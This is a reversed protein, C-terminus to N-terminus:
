FSGGLGLFLGADSGGSREFTSRAGLDAKLGFLDFRAGLVVTGYSDDMGLGPVAYSMGPLSQLRATAQGAEDEFERDWTARAYPAFGGADYSLQWGLSGVLSDRSQDPLILASSSANGETWGDLEVQQWLLSAVPGHRLAGNGFQYGSSLGVATADGDASGSHRRVAPGIRVERDVDVDLRTYSVQGNVWAREGYWGAFAGLTTDAQTFGGRDGGFDADMRGYAAFGGAVLGNGNSWDMGFLAAPAIGDYLEGHGYRQHDARLGGWWRTGAPAQGRVHTAVQDARSRGTVTASYPIVAALRPGELVSLAYQGLMEHAAGSPHVGDAFLYTQGADPSVYSAPTCTLSSAGPPQCATGTVNTFGYTSPSAAIERLLSFTDLPIVKYGAQGLAGYLAQNYNTALATLTAQGIPGAAIADPTMGMDPLSPVLIYRAGAADLAGVAQVTGGIATAITSEVPAGSAIAFLDNAGTWVTYLADADARGGSAALYANVQTLTSDAPGNPVAARSGGQAYNDGGEVATTADTGYYRALYESWVLAPNTTFKGTFPRASAPIQSRFHGSDTLSDGFFVTRSYEGAAAPAVALALALPLLKRLPRTSM